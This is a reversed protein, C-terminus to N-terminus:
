EEALLLELEALLVYLEDVKQQIQEERQLGSQVTQNTVGSIDFDELILEQEFSENTENFLTVENTKANVLVTRSIGSFDNPVVSLLWFLTNNKVFPRPEIVRNVSWDITPFQSRVFSVVRVPGILTDGPDLEFLEVKGTQADVFFLKFVGRSQGYPEAAVVWKLGNKTNMLFPQDNASAAVEAVEVQDEHLFWANFLGKHYAYSEVTLRALKEPYLRSDQLFSYNSVETSLIDRIQGNSDVLFIGGFKPIMVPFSFEYEIYPAVIYYSDNKPDYAYFIEAVDVFYKKKHLNWYIDDFIGIGESVKFRQDVLQTQKSISQANVLMLGEVKQLFYLLPTNPIRAAAWYQTNEVSIVRFQGLTERSKQLSDIGYRNAVALPVVRASSSDHLTDIIAYDTQSVIHLQVILPSLALLVLLVVIVLGVILSTRKLQSLFTIIFVGVTIILIVLLPNKYLSMVFPHIWPRFVYFILLTLLGAVILHLKSIGVLNFLSKRQFM